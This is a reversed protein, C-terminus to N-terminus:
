WRLTIVQEGSLGLHIGALDSQMRLDVEGGEIDCILVNARHAEIEDELCFVPVRAFVVDDLEIL